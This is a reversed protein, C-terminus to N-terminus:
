HYRNKRTEGTGAEERTINEHANIYRIRVFVMNLGSLNKTDELGAGM